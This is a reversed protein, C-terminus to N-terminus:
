KEIAIGYDLIIKGEADPTIFRSCVYREFFFPPTASQLGQGNLYAVCAEHMGYIAPDGQAGRLYVIAVRAEPLPLEAYGPPTIAGPRCFHGIWYEFKGNNLRMFGLIDDLDPNARLAALPTCAQDNFWEHWKGAFSNNEDRDADSYRKGILKRAPLTEIEHRIIDIKGM